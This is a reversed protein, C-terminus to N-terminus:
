AAHRWLEDSARGGGRGVVHPVRRAVFEEGGVDDGRDASLDRVCRHGRLATEKGRLTEGPPKTSM